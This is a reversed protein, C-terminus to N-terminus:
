MEKNFIVKKAWKKKKKFRQLLVRQLTMQVVIDFKKKGATYRGANYIFYIYVFIFIFM